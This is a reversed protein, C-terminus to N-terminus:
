RARAREALRDVDHREAAERERDADQDVVRRDRDLVDVPLEVCPLGVRAPSGRRRAASRPARREHRREADADHEHRHEEEGADRAIQEHRQGLRDHERHQRRVQQRARQHRRHRLVQQLRMGLVRVACGGCGCGARGAAARKSRPNSRAARRSGRRQELPADRLRPTTRRRHEQQTQRAESASSDAPDALVEERGDVGALELQVHARRGARADLLRRREAIADFRDIRSIMGGLSIALMMSLMPRGYQPMLRDYLVDAGIPGPSASM